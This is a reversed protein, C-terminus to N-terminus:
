LPGGKGLAAKHLPEDFCVQGFGESRRLGIGTYLVKQMWERVTGADDQGIRLLFTSGKVLAVDVPKFIRAVSHWGSLRRAACFAKVISVSVPPFGGQEPDNLIEPTLTIAPRLLKDVLIGDSLLTMTFYAHGDEVLFSSPDTGPWDLNWNSIEFRVKGMRRRGIYGICGQPSILRELTEIAENTAALLGWFKAGGPLERQSHLSAGVASRTKGSVATRTAMVTKMQYSKPNRGAGSYFVGYPVLPSNGCSEGKSSSCRRGPFGAFNPLGEFLLDWAGHSRLRSGNVREGRFGPHSKCTYTSLPTVRVHTEGDLPYLNPFCADGECFLQRFQGDAIGGKRLYAGALTGMLVSGPIYDLTDVENGMAPMESLCCPSMLEARIERFERIM